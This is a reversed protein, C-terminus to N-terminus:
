LKGAERKVPAVAISMWRVAAPLPSLIPVWCAPRSPPITNWADLYTDNLCEEADQEDHLIHRMLTLLLSRYKEDVLRLATENRAFLLSVIYADDIANIHSM